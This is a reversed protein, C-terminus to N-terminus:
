EFNEKGWGNKKENTRALMYVLSLKHSLFFYSSVQNACARADLIDKSKIHENTDLEREIRRDHTVFLKEKSNQSKNKKRGEWEQMM